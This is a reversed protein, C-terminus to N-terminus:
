QIPRTLEAVLAPGLKRRAAKLPRTFRLLQPLQDPSKALARLLAWPQAKGSFRNCGASLLDAPLRDTVEDSIVRIVTLPLAHATCVKLVHAYEMEVLKAGTSEHISRRAHSDAV